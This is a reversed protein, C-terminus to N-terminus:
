GAAAVGKQEKFLDPREIALHALKAGVESVTNYFRHSLHDNNHVNVPAANANVTDM